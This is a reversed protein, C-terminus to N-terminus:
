MNNRYKMHIKPSQHRSHDTMTLWNQMMRFEVSKLRTSNKSFIYCRILTLDSKKTIGDFIASFKLTTAVSPGLPRTKSYKKIDSSVYKHIYIM